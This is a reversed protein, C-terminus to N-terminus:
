EVRRGREADDALLLEARLQRDDRVVGLLFRYPQGVVGPGPQAGRDPRGVRLVGHPHPPLQAGPDGEEVVVIRRRDVLPRREAAEALGADPPLQAALTHTVEGLGMHHGDRGLSYPRPYVAFKMTLSPSMAALPVASHFPSTGVPVPVKVAPSEILPPYVKLDRKSSPGPEFGSCSMAAACAAQKEIASDLM